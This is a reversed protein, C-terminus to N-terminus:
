RMGNMSGYGSPGANVARGPGTGYGNPSAAGPAYGAPPSYGTPPGYGSPPGYVPPGAQPASMPSSPVPGYPGPTTASANHSAPQVPRMGLAPDRRSSSPSMPKLSPLSDGGGAGGDLETGKGPAPAGQLSRPVAENPDYFYKSGTPDQDPYIVPLSDGCNLCSGGQLGVDGHVNVVDGLCWNMRESETGKIWDYDEDFKVIKPTMIIMLERRDQSNSNYEFLKGLVPIDSLYPVRRTTVTKSTQILGGFVVTQGDKASITTIASTSNIAKIQATGNGSPV